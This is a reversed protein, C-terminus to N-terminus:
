CLSRSQSAAASEAVEAAGAPPLNLFHPGPPAFRADQYLRGATGAAPLDSYLWPSNPHRLSSGEGACRIRFDIAQGAAYLSGREVSRVVGKM